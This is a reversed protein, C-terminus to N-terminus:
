VAVFTWIPGRWTESDSEHRTLESVNPASGIARPWFAQAVANLALVAVEWRGPYRALVQRVAETAVGRRRFKRAVFFEAMNWDPTGGLHSHRNVLAFGAAEGDVRIVLPVRGEERWYEPLPKYPEFQGRVDFAFAASGEPDLESFDYQYFQMLGELLPRETTAALQVTVEPQAM